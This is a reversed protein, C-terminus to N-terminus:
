SDWDWMVVNVFSFVMSYMVGAMLRAHNWDGILQGFMVLIAMEFLMYAVPFLTVISIAVKYKRKM